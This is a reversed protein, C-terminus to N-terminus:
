GYFRRGSGSATEGKVIIREVRGDIPPKIELRNKPSITGTTSVFNKITGRHAHTIETAEAPGQKGKLVFALAILAAVILAAGAIMAIKKSTM